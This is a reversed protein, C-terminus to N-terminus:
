GAIEVGVFRVSRVNVPSKFLLYQFSDAPKTIIDEVVGYVGVSISPITIADGKTVLVDKPIKIEFNGGGKGEATASIDKKGILVEVKEGPASALLAIAQHTRVETIKGVVTTSGVFVKQGLAIGDDSGVDLLITDYLTQPPRALVAGLVVHSSSKRGLMEKLEMNERYVADFALSSLKGMEADHKLQLNETVLATKSQFYGFIFPSSAAIENESKQVPTVLLGFLSGWMHPFMWRLFLVLGLFIIVIAFAVVGKGKPKKRSQLHYNM